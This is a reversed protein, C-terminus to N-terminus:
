DPLGRLQHLSRRSQCCRMSGADPDAHSLFLVDPPTLLRAVADIGKARSLDSLDLVTMMLMCVSRLPSAPSLPLLFSCSVVGRM